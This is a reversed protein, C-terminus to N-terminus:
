FFSVCQNNMLETVAAILKKGSLKRLARMKEEASSELSIDLVKLLGNFASQSEQVTKPQSSISNSYCIFRKILGPNVGTPPAPVSSSEVEM